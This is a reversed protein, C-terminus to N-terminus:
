GILDRPSSWRVEAFRAFDHDYSVLRVFAPVALWSFAVTDAGSLADDLWTRAEEHHPRDVNLLLATRQRGVKM